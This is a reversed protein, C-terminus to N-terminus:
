GPAPRCVPGGGGEPRRGRGRAAPSPLLFRLLREYRRRPVELAATEPVVEYTKAPRGSGPGHRGTRNVFAPRLLGSEALRELRWRAVSRSLALGNAVEAATPPEQRSRVFALVDRAGPEALVDWRKM